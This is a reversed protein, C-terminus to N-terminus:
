IQRGWSYTSVKGVRKVVPSTQDADYPFLDTIEGTNYNALIYQNTMAICICYADM